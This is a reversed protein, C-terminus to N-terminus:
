HKYLSFMIKLSQTTVESILILSILNIIVALQKGADSRSACKENPCRKKTTRPLRVDNVIYKNNITDELATDDNYIKSFIVLDNSKDKYGCNKCCMFLQKDIERQYLMNECNVCFQVM